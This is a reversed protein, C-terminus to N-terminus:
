PMNINLRNNEGQKDQQINSTDKETDKDKNDKYVNKLERFFMVRQLNIDATENNLINKDTGEVIEKNTNDVKESAKSFSVISKVPSGM